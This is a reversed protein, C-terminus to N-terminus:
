NSPNMEAEMNKAFYRKISAALRKEVEKSLKIAM